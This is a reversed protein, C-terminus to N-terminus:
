DSSGRALAPRLLLKAAWAIAVVLVLNTVVRITFLRPAIARPDAAQIAMMGNGAAFGFLALKAFAGLAFLKALGGLDDDVGYANALAAFVFSGIAFRFSEDALQEFPGSPLALAFPSYAAQLTGILFVSAVLGAAVFAFGLRVFVIARVGQGMVFPLYGLTPSDV